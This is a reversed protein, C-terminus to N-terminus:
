LLSQAFLSSTSRKSFSLGQRIFIVVSGSAHTANPSLIGSQSLTRDSHLAFFGPIRFSSFLNLNSEQICVLDVPYSSLFLLESSRAQLGGANWQLVRLSDPPPSSAPPTSPCGPALPLPSPGSLYSVSHTLLFYFTQLRPHPPLAANASLPSSQVTATYM